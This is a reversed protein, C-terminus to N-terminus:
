SSLIISSDNRMETIDCFVTLGPAVPFCRSFYCVMTHFTDKLQLIKEPSVQCTCVWWIAFVGAKSNSFLLVHEFGVRPKLPPEM